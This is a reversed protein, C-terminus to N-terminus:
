NRHYQHDYFMRHATQTFAVLRDRLQSPVTDTLQLKEPGISMTYGYERMGPAIVAVDKGDGYAIAFNHQTIIRAAGPGVHNLDMGFFPSTYALGLYGLLTPAVDISSGLTEAKMPAIYEPAYFLLPVRFSPLPVQAAGFVRPGHDGIFVFITDKAWPHSQAQDIFHGFAWDAYSASNYRSRDEPNKAIRGAPYLYPRHNSVTLLSLFFPHASDAAMQDARNLAEAFLYEDAVGWITSFDARAIDTQDWVHDFGIGSWFMGMNDFAKRGGYLFATTYGHDHLLAPLSNMGVSGSRRATSIGPIPPFSTLVAELANVTRNGTAYINEFFAGRQALRDFNPSVEERGKNDTLDVYTSGFSEELVLVVNLKRSRVIDPAVTRLLPAQKIPGEFHTNDQEINKRIIAVAQDQDMSPYLGEYAQDNTLLAHLFRETGNTMIDAVERNFGFQVPGYMAAIIALAYAIGGVVLIHQKETRDPQAMLAAGYRKRLVLYLFATVLPVILLLRIDFSEGINGIVEKPFMLYNVAISNFRSDFERWFFVDAIQDFVPISLLLVFLIHAGIYGARRQWLQSLGYLGLLFPGGLLVGIALDNITGVPFTWLLAPILDPSAKAAILSLVFRDGSEAIVFIAL